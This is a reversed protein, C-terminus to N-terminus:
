SRRRVLARGGLVIWASLWAANFLALAFRLLDHTVVQRFVGEVFGAILFLVVSGAAVVAGRRGADVLADRVSRAGPALVSRGLALGAGGCLLIAGIEPVGHPLLWGLLPILLGREDYLALFGGLMLGNTFVLLATPVGAAFGLAFALLGIGANHSFLSTAFISLGDHQPAYLGERLFETSAGPSRGSALGPDVFAFYWEADVRVMAYAVLLGLLFITTSLALERSMSRVAAPFREFFFRRLPGREPRRSTYVALYARGVLSELYNVLARDLATKRAVNLSSVASRYLMPLRHLEDESLGRLGSSLARDLMQELESWEAEREARFRVSRPEVRMPDSVRDTM